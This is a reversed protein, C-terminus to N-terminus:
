VVNDDVSFLLEGVVERSAQVNDLVLNIGPFLQVVINIKLSELASLVGLMTFASFSLLARPIGMDVVNQLYLLTCAVM